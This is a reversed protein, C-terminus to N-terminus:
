AGLSEGHKSASSQGSHQGKGLLRSGMRFPVAPLQDQLRLVTEVEFLRGAFALGDVVANIILKTSPRYCLSVLLTVMASM